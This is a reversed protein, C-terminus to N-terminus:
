QLPPASPQRATGDEGVIVTARGGPGFTARVSRGWASRAFIPASSECVLGTGIVSADGAHGEADERLLLRLRYGPGGSSASGTLEYALLGAAAPDLGLQAAVEDPDPGSVATRALPTKSPPPGARFRQLVAACRIGPAPEFRLTERIATRTTDAAGDKGRTALAAVTHRTTDATLRVLALWFAVELPCGAPLSVQTGEPPARATISEVTPRLLRAAAPPRLSADVLQLRGNVLTARLEAYVVPPADLAPSPWPEAPGPEARGPWGTDSDLVEPAETRWDILRPEAPRKPM